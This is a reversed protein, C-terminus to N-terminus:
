YKVEIRTDTGYSVQMGYDRLWQRIADAQRYQRTWRYGLLDHVQELIWGMSPYQEGYVQAPNGCRPAWHWVPFSWRLEPLGDVMRAEIVPM